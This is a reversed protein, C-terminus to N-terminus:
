YRPSLMLLTAALRGEPFPPLETHGSSTPALAKQHNNRELGTRNHSRRRSPQEPLVCALARYDTGKDSRAKVALAETLTM